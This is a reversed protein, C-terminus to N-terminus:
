EAVMGQLTQMTERRMESIATNELEREVEWQHYGAMQSGNEWTGIMQVYKVLEDDSMDDLRFVRMGYPPTSAQNVLKLEGATDAADIFSRLDNFM